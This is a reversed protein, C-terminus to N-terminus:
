CGAKVIHFFKQFLQQAFLDIDRTSRVGGKPAIHNVNLGSDKIQAIFIILDRVDRDILDRDNVFAFVRVRPRSKDYLSRPM